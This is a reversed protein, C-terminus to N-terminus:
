LGLIVGNHVVELSPAWRESRRLSPLPGYQPSVPFGESVRLTWATIHNILPGALFEM